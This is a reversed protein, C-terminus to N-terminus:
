SVKIKGLASMEMKVIEAPLPAYGLDACYKQGDTLAWKVFDVMTKAQAKDKPNEYMLLWTFSSIPYAGKGPANTISVRFDAPMNAVAGAAAKTVGEISAKLFDGAANQVSGYAIKNQLAYILEVYGISGPTQTVLGAVGENGKGGVGAPWNVSAAVGVKSKFEPSVKSLYDVWIYTTGSGEARHVVTIDTATLKVGANLKAIAPDNWKTIKGLYIDALVQGTFKLEGAGAVNYVPVVAGLVTPFHLIPGPAAKLQQDTMPGDSAGFFVTEQTLQTIGFGSGQSQYNIEVNKHLKNYESFWKSYIPNPFTAGGGNIRMTQAALTAGAALVVVATWVRTRKM